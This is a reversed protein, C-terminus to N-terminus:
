DEDRDRDQDRDYDRDYDRDHDRDYDRDHDRDYDRDSSRQRYRSYTGMRAAGDIRRAADEISRRLLPTIISLENMAAAMGASTSGISRHIRQRASPDDRGAIDGLTERRGPRRYPDLSDRVPGVDIAMLADAVRGIAHGMSEIEAPAPLRRAIEEDAPIPRHSPQAAVPSALACLSAAIILKRM